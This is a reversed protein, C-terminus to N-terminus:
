DKPAEKMGEPVAEVLLTMFEDTMADSQERTIEQISTGNTLLERIKCSCFAKHSELLGRLFDRDVRYFIM